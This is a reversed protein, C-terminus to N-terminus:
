TKEKDHEKIHSSIKRMVDGHYVFDFAKDLNNLITKFERIAIKCDQNNEDILVIPTHLIIKTPNLTDPWAYILECSLLKNLHKKLNHHPLDLRESIKLINLGSPESTRIEHLIKLDISDFLPRGREGRKRKVKNEM